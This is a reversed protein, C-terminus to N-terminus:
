VSILRVNSGSYVISVFIRVEKNENWLALRTQEVSDYGERM